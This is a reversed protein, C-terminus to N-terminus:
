NYLYIGSFSSFGHLGDVFADKQHVTQIWARDGADMRILASNGGQLDENIHFVDTVAGNVEQGNHMLGMWTQGIRNGGNGIFYTFM